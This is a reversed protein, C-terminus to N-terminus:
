QMTMMCADKTFKSADIQNLPIGQRKRLLAWYHLAKLKQMVLFPFNVPVDAAPAVVNRDHWNGMHKVMKDIQDESISLLHNINTFGENNIVVVTSANFGIRTLADTFTAARTAASATTRNDFRFQSRHNHRNVPDGEKLSKIRM